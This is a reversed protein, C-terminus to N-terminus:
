KERKRKVKKKAQNQSNSKGCSILAFTNYLINNENRENKEILIDYRKGSQSPTTFVRLRQIKPQVFVHHL